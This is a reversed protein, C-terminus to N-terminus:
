RANTINLIKIRSVLAWEIKGESNKPANVHNSCLVIFYGDCLDVKIASVSETAIEEKKGVVIETVNKHARFDALRTKLKSSVDKGYQAIASEENECLTRLEKNQFALEL